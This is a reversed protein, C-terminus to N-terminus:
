PLMWVSPLPLLLCRAITSPSFVATFAPARAQYIAPNGIFAECFITSAWVFRVVPFADDADTCLSLGILFQRM